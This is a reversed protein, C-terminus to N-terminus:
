KGHSWNVVNDGKATLFSEGLRDECGPYLRGQKETTTCDGGNISGICKKERWYRCTFEFMLIESIPLHELLKFVWNVSTEFVGKKWGPFKRVSNKRKRNKSYSHM